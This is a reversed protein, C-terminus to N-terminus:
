PLSERPNERLCNAQELAALAVRLRRLGARASASLIFDLIETQDCGRSFLELFDQSTLRLCSDEIDRAIKGALGPCKEFVPQGATSLYSLFLETSSATAAADFRFRRWPIDTSFKTYSKGAGACPPGSLLRYGFYRLYRAILVFECEPPTDFSLADAVRNILNFGVIILIATVVAARDVGYSNFARIDEVTVADPDLTLKRAFDVM